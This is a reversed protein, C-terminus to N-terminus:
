IAGYAVWEDTAIKKITAGAWQSSIIVSGGVTGNLTVSPDASITLIGTGYQYMEVEDDLSFAVSSNPPITVTVASINNTYIFKGADTLVLTYSTGTQLVSTSFGGGGGAPTSWNGTYDLYQGSTGGTVGIAITGSTTIPSGTVSFAAPATLGVSTVTGGGGAVTQWSTNTGDTQLYKGANGTQSPLVQNATVVHPNNTDTTHNTLDTALAYTNLQTNTPIVRDTDLGIALTGSSTIPSGSITLGTPVSAAVSTVTGNGKANFTAWDVSSLYGDTGASSQQVQITTGTGIVAGTGGTITLINSTTETLNSLSLASQKNNFTNWDTSSLYGDTSTTSQTIGITGTTTITGGTIPATTAVSTVTGSGGVTTWSLIGSGNTQLVQGTTGDSTPYSLGDLVVAGSGDPTININNNSGAQSIISHISVDLDGGLTPATDDVVAELKADWTSQEADTPLSYGTDFSIALTGSSTIPSGTISFGTPVSAAVSTVTGSGGGGGSVDVAYGIWDNIDKQKVFIKSYQSPCNISGNNIGNLNVGSVVEVTLAGGGYQYFEMETGIPVDVTSNDAISITVPSSNTTFIFKGAEDVSPTLSTGSEIFPARGYNIMPNGVINYGNTDLLGGLSPTTDEEVNELYNGAPQIGAEALTQNEWYPGSSNWQLIENDTISTILVDHLEDLEYGNDVKVFIKGNSSHAYVVYGVVILHAPTIPKVNTLYGAHYPDLYLIDGDVWTESGAWSNAGTTNINNVKGSITIFGEQNNLITETVIGITTASNTDSDAQALVVALRQGQAGGEGVLRIRVAQFDAELLDGGTKNVVRVLEEQGIQLTVGNLNLDVTQETDNWSLTGEAGTGGKLQLSDLQATGGTIDVDVADQFAMTGFSGSAGLAVNIAAKVTDLDEDVTIIVSTNTVVDTGAAREVLTTIGAANVYITRGVSETLQILEPILTQLDVLTDSVDEYRGNAYVLRETINDYVFSVFDARYVGNGITLIRLPSAM